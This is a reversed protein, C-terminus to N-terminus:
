PAGDRLRTNDFPLCNVAAPSCGNLPNQAPTYCSTCTSSDSKCTGVDPVQGDVIVVGTDTTTIVKVDMPTGSDMMPTTGGSGSGSGTGTGTHTGGDTKPPPQTFSDVGGDFVTPGPNANDNSCAFFGLVSTAILVAGLAAVPSRLTPKM